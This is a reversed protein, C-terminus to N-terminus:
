DVVKVGQVVIDVRDVKVGTIDELTYKVKEMVNRAVVSIRTGYGVIIYLDVALGNDQLTVEVGKRLSERGLMVVLGDQLTKPAMGVLGYCEMAAAGAITAFVEKSISVSGYETQIKNPM